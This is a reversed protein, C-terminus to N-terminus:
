DIVKLFTVITQILNYKRAMGKPIATPLKKEDIINEGREEL